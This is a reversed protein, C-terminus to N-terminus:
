YITCLLDQWLSLFLNWWARRQWLTSIYSPLSFVEWSMEQLQSATGRIDKSGRDNSSVLPIFGTFVGSSLLPRIGWCGPSLLQYRQSYQISSVRWSVSFNVALGGVVESSGGFNESMYFTSTSGGLVSLLGRNKELLGLHQVVCSTFCFIESTPLNWSYWFAPIFKIPNSDAVVVLGLFSREPFRLVFIWVTRAICRGSIVIAHAYKGTYVKSLNIFYCSLDIM